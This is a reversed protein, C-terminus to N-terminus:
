GQCRAISLSRVGVGGQVFSVGRSAIAVLGAVAIAVPCGSGIRPRASAIPIAKSVRAVLREFPEIGRHQHQAVGLAAPEARIM